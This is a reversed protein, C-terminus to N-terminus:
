ETRLSKVPNSIAARITQFSVTLLTISLAGAIAIAFVQWNIVTRYEYQQLWQHLLYYAVPVAIFSSLIVLVVFDKSLLKWVNFISAGLVKRVGIEKTRQEAIFSALGFLGLCSILIALVAFFAALKGIREEAAFKLAYQEDAFQYDFPASPTLKKFVAEIKPLATAVSVTPNLRVNIWTHYMNSLFFVTPLTPEYPSLAVMDKVVGLITFNEAERWGPSWEVTEGVPNQLGMIKAFSENIVFGSSDTAFGKNFDRGAVFEWGVTKGYGSTVSLTGAGRPLKLENGKLFFGSNWMTVATVPSRSEAMESVVGTNMLEARLLEYKGYFEGTKMEIQLLGEKNYGIPRNRAHGIQRYIIITGIILVVSVTFQVVVLAKRPIAALRSAHFTGKLVKVPKFSSLYLAPYSGAVLGTLLIFCFSIAWFYPNSLPLTMQKAAIENFWPLSLAVVGFALIFALLVVLLSESFFQNILQKRESGLTKRIGVEKARKESRATSLNMFNICALLLVFAGILGVMWVIQAAGNSGLDAHLHWMSMPLLWVHRNRAVEKQRSEMNRIKNLEADKIFGSVQEINENQNVQAYISVFHNDWGQNKIWPNASVWLDFPALFNVEHLETNAPLDEFVGTVKVDMDTNVKIVKNMPDDNGFLAKAASESLMISSMDQLGERTGKLMKLTFMDPAGPEIFQGKKSLKKDGIALIAEKTQSSLLIHKFYQGYNTKLEDALPLPLNPNADPKGEDTMGRKTVKAIRDYNQHYKNFSLEDYIWLGVLIAVTMGIALGGINIFSSFKNKVLNRWAIKLYNKIM